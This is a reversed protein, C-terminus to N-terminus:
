SMHDETRGRGSKLRVKPWEYMKLSGKRMLIKAANLHNQEKKVLSTIKELDEKSQRTQNFILYESLFM